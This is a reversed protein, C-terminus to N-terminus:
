MTKALAFARMSSAGGPSSSAVLAASAAFRRKSASNLFPQFFSSPQQEVTVTLVPLTEAVVVLRFDLVSRVSAM